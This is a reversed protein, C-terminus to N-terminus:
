IPKSKSLLLLIVQMKALLVQNNLDQAIQQSPVRVRGLRTGTDFVDEKAVFKKILCNGM